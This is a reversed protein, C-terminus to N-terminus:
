EAKEPQAYENLQIILPTQSRIGRGFGVCQRNPLTSLLKAYDRGIYNGLFDMGTADFTRLGFITNCQNLITKTVNATRQTIVLCGLGHKRGQLIARTTANVANKDGDSVVSNWEPILSHAEEFVLCVKATPSMEAQLCKFVQEAIIRTVQVVTLAGIGATNNYMGSTQETVVFGNPNIIRIWRKDDGIFNPLHVGLAEAFARHNGGSEKNQNPSQATTKIAESIASDEDNERKTDEENLLAPAYQGTIDIVIVKIRSRVFERILELALTTKGSGLVGLIATNHTVTQDCDITLGYRTEPIYGVYYQDDTLPSSVPELYVADYIRPVWAVQDFNKAQDNWVGLKRAEVVLYGHRDSQQLVESETVGNTIQYLVTKEDIKMTVMRGVRLSVNGRYIEIRVSETDSREIVCGIIQRRRNLVDLDVTGAGLQEEMCGYVFMESGWNVRVHEKSLENPLILAKSWRESSLRYNDVVVALQARHKDMPLLVLDDIQLQMDDFVSFTVIGPDRRHLIQGIAHADARTTHWIERLQKALRFIVQIPKALIITIWFSALWISDAGDFRFTFLSLIFAATFLVNPSGFIRLIQNSTEAIKRRNPKPSGFAIMAILSSVLILVSIMLLGLWYIQLDSEIQTGPGTLLGIIAAIIALANSFADRPSTFFPQAVLEGLLLALFASWFWFGTPLLEQFILCNFGYATLVYALFVAIRESQTLKQQM